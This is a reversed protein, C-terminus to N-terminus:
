TSNSRHPSCTCKFVADEHFIEDIAARRRVPDIEGFVDHLNRLLLTPITYSMTKRRKTDLEVQVTEVRSPETAPLATPPSTQASVRAGSVFAAAGAALAVAQRRSIVTKKSKPLMAESM